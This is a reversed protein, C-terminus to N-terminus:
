FLCFGCVCGVSVMERPIWLLQGKVPASTEELSVSLTFTDINRKNYTGHPTKSIELENEQYM